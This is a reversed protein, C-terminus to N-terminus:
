KQAGRHLLCPVLPLSGGALAPFLPSMPKIGPNPLDGPLVCAVWELIRAQLIGHVSSGPMCSDVPYCFTLYFQLSKAHMCTRSMKVYLGRVESCSVNPLDSVLILSCLSPCSVWAM